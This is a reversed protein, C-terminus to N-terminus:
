DARGRVAEVLLIHAVVDFREIPVLGGRPRAQRGGHDLARALLIALRQLPQGATHRRPCLARGAACDASALRREAARIRDAAPWPSAISWCRARACEAASTSM